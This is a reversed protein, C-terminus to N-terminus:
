SVTASPPNRDCARNQTAVATIRAAIKRESGRQKRSQFEVPCCGEQIRANESLIEKRKDSFVSMRSHHGLQFWSSSTSPVPSVVLKQVERQAGLPSFELASKAGSRRSSRRRM